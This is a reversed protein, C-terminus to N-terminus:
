YGHYGGRMNGHLVITVMGVEDIVESVMYTEGDLRFVQQEPPLEPLDSKKVHVIVQKGYIGDFGQLDRQQLFIDRDTPSQVVCLTMTGNLDHEEAFEDMNIFTDLDQELCEKFTSM